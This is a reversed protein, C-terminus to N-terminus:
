DKEILRQAIDVGFYDSFSWVIEIRSDKYILIKEILTDTLEKTLTDINMLSEVKQLMDSAKDQNLAALVDANTLEKIRNRYKIENHELRKYIKSHEEDTLDGELLKAFAKEKELPIKNLKIQLSRIENSHDTQHKATEKIQQYFMAAQKRINEMVLEMLEKVYVRNKVCELDLGTRYRDCNYYDNPTVVYHMAYGCHGCRIKGVFPRYGKRTSTHNPCKKRVAQAQDYIEQTIIPPIKDPVVVWESKPVSICQKSGIEAIRTRGYISKGTYREETLIRLVAPATWVGESTLSNWGKIKNHKHLFELPTKYGAENLEKAIETNSKGAICREFILQVIPAAEEDIELKYKEKSKIYGFFAFSSHFRGNKFNLAKAQKLKKSLSTSYYQHMIQKFGVDVMGAAGYPYNKSDYHDNVSIFRVGMFPFIQELYDSVALYDRGFRSFDKVIITKIRGKKIETMLQKFGSRDFNTGSKGDDIFEVSECNKLDDQEAIYRDILSRQNHISNSEEKKDDLDEDELSLRLYKGLLEGM